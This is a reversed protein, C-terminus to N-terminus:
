PHFHRGGLHLISVEPHALKISQGSPSAQRYGSTVRDDNEWELAGLRAPMRVRRGPCM